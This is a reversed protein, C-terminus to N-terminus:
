GRVRALEVTWDDAVTLSAGMPLLTRINLRDLADDIQDDLARLGIRGRWDSPDARVRGRLEAREDLAECLRMLPEPNGRVEGLLNVADWMERGAADLPRPPEPIPLADSM